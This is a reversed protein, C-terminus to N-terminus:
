TSVAAFHNAFLAAKIQAAGIEVSLLPLNRSLDFDGEVLIPMSGHALKGEV